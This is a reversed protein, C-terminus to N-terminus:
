WRITAWKGRPCFTAANQVNTVFIFRFLNHCDQPRTLNCQKLTMSIFLLCKSSKYARPEHVKMQCLIEWIHVMQHKLFFFYLPMQLLSLVRCMFFFPLTLKLHRKFKLHKNPRYASEMLSQVHKDVCIKKRMNKHTRHLGRPHLFIEFTTTVRAKQHSWNKGFIPSQM